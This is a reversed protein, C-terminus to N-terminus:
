LIPCILNARALCFVMWVWLLRGIPLPWINCGQRFHFAWFVLNFYMRVWMLWQDDDNLGVYWVVIVFNVSLFHHRPLKALNDHWPHFVVLFRALSHKAGAYCLSSYWFMCVALLYFSNQMKRLTNHFFRSEDRFCRVRGIVEFGKRMWWGDQIRRHAEMDQLILMLSVMGVASTM